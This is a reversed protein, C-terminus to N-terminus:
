KICSFYFQGNIIKKRCYGIEFLLVANCGDFCHKALPELTTFRTFFTIAVRMM